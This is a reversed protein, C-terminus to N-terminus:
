RHNESLSLIQFAFCLLTICYAESSFLVCSTRWAFLCADDKRVHLACRNSTADAHCAHHVKELGIPGVQFALDGQVQAPVHRCISFFLSRLTVVRVFLLVTLCRLNVIGCLCQLAFIYCSALSVHFSACRCLVRWVSVASVYCAALECEFCLGRWCHCLVGGFRSGKRCQFM